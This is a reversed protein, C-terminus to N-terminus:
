IDISAPAGGDNLDWGGWSSAHASRRAQKEIRACCADIIAQEEPTPVDCLTQLNTSAEEEGKKGDETAKTETPM